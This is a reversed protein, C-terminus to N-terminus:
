IFHYRLFLFSIQSITLDRKIMMLCTIKLYDCYYCSWESIKDPHIWYQLVSYTTSLKTNSLIAQM